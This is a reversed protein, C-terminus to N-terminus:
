HKLSINGDIHLYFIFLVITYIFNLLVNSLIFNFYNCYIFFFFNIFFIFFRGVSGVKQSSRYRFCLM